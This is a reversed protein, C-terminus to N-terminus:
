EGHHPPREARYFEEASLHTEDEGDLDVVREEDASGAAAPADATRDYDVDAVRKARRRARPARTETVGRTETDRHAM